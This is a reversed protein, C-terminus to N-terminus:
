NARWAVRDLAFDKDPKIFQVGIGSAMTQCTTNKQAIQSFADGGVDLGPLELHDLEPMTNWLKFGGDTIEASSIALRQCKLLGIAAM